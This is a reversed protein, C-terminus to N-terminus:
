SHTLSGFFFSSEWTERFPAQGCEVCELLLCFIDTEPYVSDSLSRLECRLSGSGLSLHTSSSWQFYFPNGSDRCVFGPDVQVWSWSSEGLESGQSARGGFMYDEPLFNSSEETLSAIAWPFSSYTIADPLVGIFCCFRKGMGIINNSKDTSVGGKYARSEWITDWDQSKFLFLFGLMELYKFFTDVM